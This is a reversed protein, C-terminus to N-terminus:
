RKKAHVRNRRPHGQTIQGEMFGVKRDPDHSLYIGDVVWSSYAESPKLTALRVRYAPSRRLVKRVVVVEKGNLWAARGPPFSDKMIKWNHVYYWKRMVNRAANQRDISMNRTNRDLVM